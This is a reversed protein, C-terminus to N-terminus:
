GGPLFSDISSMLHATHHENTQRVIPGSRDSFFSTARDAQVIIGNAQEGDRCKLVQMTLEVMRDTNDMPGLLSVITDPSKAAESTDALSALTYMGIKDAQERAPRTVQWPSVFPVGRGRDFTTAIQKAEKIIASADEHYAARARDSKLLNLYDLIVLDIKFKALIRYLRQEISAVTAYRPVQAVYVKGYAPNTRLDNLIARFVPEDTEPLEGMKLHKSNLGMPLGFREVKSHRSVFRRLVQDRLTETTLFVVNMGQEVAATWTLNVCLATKGDSVSGLILALDGNQLGGTHRDITPLGWRIGPLGTTRALEKTRFYATEIGELDGVLEGEPAADMNIRSDVRDIATLVYSRAAQHGREEGRGKKLIEMADTLAQGTEKEALLDQLMEVSWDFEADDIQKEAAMEYLATLAVQKGVDLNNQRCVDALFKMPLVGQYREYYREIFRFLIRQYPDAFHEASLNSSLIQELLDIRVPLLGALVMEGHEVADV